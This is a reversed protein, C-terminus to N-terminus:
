QIIYDIYFHQNEYYGAPGSPKNQPWDSTGSYNKLVWKNNNYEIRQSYNEWNTHGYKYYIGMGMIVSNDTDGYIPTYTTTSGSQTYSAPAFYNGNSDVLLWLGNCSIYPSSTNVGTLGNGTSENTVCYLSITKPHDAIYDACYYTDTDTCEVTQVLTAKHSNSPVCISKNDSSQVITQLCCNGYSDKQKCGKPCYALTQITDTASDSDLVQPMAITDEIPCTNPVNYTTHEGILILTLYLLFATNNDNSSNPSVHVSPVCPGVTDESTIQCTSHEYGDECGVVCSANNTQAHFWALLTDNGKDPLLKVGDTDTGTCKGWIDDATVTNNQAQAVCDKVDQKCVSGSLISLRMSHNKKNCLAFNGAVSNCKQIMCTQGVAMCNEWIKEKSIDSSLGALGTEWDDSDVLTMCAGQIDSCMTNATTDASVAFTSLARVDFDELSKYANSKCETILAVCSRRISELKANQALKIQALADELFDDWVDDALDQCQDTATELFMKKSNLFNVFAKNASLRSWKTDNTPPTLLNTINMLDDSLFADGTSPDIYQGTIDLCKYLQEGCVSADSLQNLMKRKCTLIDDSNRQQYANLRAMDLLASSEHIKDIATNYKATYAKSVTNCDNQISLKYSNEAIELEETSCIEKAMEICIPQAANYLDTGSKATTSIGALSDVSDWASDMDLDLSIASLNNTIKSDGSSNLTKTIKQLLKESESKDTQSYATEGETAINISLADEKDMGVTLLRQNFGLMKEEVNGLQKKIGDFEHVRASCACRRLTTDKNACFEDMCEQYVNKCRSYDKSKIADIKSDDLAAARATRINKQTNTGARTLINKSSAVQRTATRSQSVNRKPMSARTVVNKQASRQKVAPQNKANTRSQVSTTNRANKNVVSRVNEARNSETKQKTNTTNTRSTTANSSITNTMGRKNAARVTESDVAFATQFASLGLCVTLFLTIRKM